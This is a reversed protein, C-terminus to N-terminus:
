TSPVQVVYWREDDMIELWRSSLAPLNYPPQTWLIYNVKTVFGGGAGIVLQALPKDAAISFPVCWSRFLSNRNSNAFDDSNTQLNTSIVRYFSNDFHNYWVLVYQTQPAPPSPLSPLQPLLEFTNITKQEQDTM